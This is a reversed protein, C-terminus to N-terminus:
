TTEADVRGTVHNIRKELEILRKHQGFLKSIILPIEKVPSAMTGAFSAYLRGQDLLYDFVALYVM